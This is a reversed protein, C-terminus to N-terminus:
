SWGWGSYISLYIMELNTIMMVKEDNYIHTLETVPNTM